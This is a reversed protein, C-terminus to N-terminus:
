GNKKESEVIDQVVDLFDKVPMERLYELSTSCRM